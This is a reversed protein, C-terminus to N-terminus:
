RPTQFKAHAWTMFIHPSCLLLFKGWGGLFNLYREKGSCKGSKTPVLPTNLFTKMQNQFKVYAYLIITELIIKVIKIDIKPWQLWMIWFYVTDRHQQGSPQLNSDRYPSGLWGHWYNLILNLLKVDFEKILNNIANYHSRSLQTDAKAASRLIAPKLGLLLHTICHM